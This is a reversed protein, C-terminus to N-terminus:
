YCRHDGLEGGLVVVGWGRCDQASRLIGFRGCRDLRGAGIRCEGHERSRFETRVPPTFRRDQANGAAIKEVFTSGQHQALEEVLM